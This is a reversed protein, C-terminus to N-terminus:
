FPLAYRKVENVNPQTKLNGIQAIFFLKGPHKKEAEQIALTKDDNVFYDKTDVEIVVFKGYYNKELEEKIEFYIQEGLKIIEEPSRTQSNSADSM